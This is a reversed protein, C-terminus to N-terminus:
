LILHIFVLFFLCEKRSVIATSVISDTSADGPKQAEMVQYFRENEKKTDKLTVSDLKYTLSTQM